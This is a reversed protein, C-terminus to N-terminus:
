NKIYFADGWGCDRWMKCAVRKFGRKNLYEDIETLLACDKYVKETNVETYIYKVYQIYNEMSKLADLEKGQIDINLFNLREIPIRNKKIFTDLRTTKLQKSDVMKIHPHHTKHSGFELISSSQGNNTINFKVEKDDEIDILAQYIQVNKEKKMLKVKDEMAEIWYINENKIGLKLYANLEECEHAGIHLIGAINLNFHQVLLELPILM